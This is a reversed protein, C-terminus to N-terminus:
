VVVQAQILRGIREITHGDIQKVGFGHLILRLRIALISREFNWRQHLLDRHFLRDDCYLRIAAVWGLRLLRGLACVAQLVFLGLLRSGALPFM